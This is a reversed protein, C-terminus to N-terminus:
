NGIMKPCLSIPAEEHHLVVFRSGGNAEAGSHNVLNINIQGWKFKKPFLFTRM